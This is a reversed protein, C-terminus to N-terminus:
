DNDFSKLQRIAKQTLAFCAKKSKKAGLNDQYPFLGNSTM